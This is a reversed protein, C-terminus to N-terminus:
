HGHWSIFESSFGRDEKGFGDEKVYDGQDKYGQSGDAAGTRGPDHLDGHFDTRLRKGYIRHAGSGETGIGHNLGIRDADDERLGSIGDAERLCAPAVSDGDADISDSDDTDIGYITLFGHCDIGHLGTFHLFHGGEPDGCCDERGRYSEQDEDEQGAEAGPQLCEEAREDIREELFFGSKGHVLRNSEPLRQDSDTYDLHEVPEDSEAGRDALGVSGGVGVLEVEQLFSDFEKLLLEGVSDRTIGLEGFQAAGILGFEAVAVPLDGVELDIAHIDAAVDEIAFESVRWINVGRWTGSDGPGFIEAAAPLCPLLRGILLRLLEGRIM